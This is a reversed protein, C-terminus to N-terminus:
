VDPNDDADPATPGNITSTTARQTYFGGVAISAPAAIALWLDVEAGTAALAGLWATLVLQILTVFVVPEGLFLDRIFRFM